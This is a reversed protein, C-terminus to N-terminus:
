RLGLIDRTTQYIKIAEPHGSQILEIFNFTSRVGVRDFPSYKGTIIYSTKAAANLFGATSVIGPYKAQFDEDLLLPCEKFMEELESDIELM